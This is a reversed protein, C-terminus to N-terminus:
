YMINMFGLCTKIIGCAALPIRDYDWSHFEYWFGTVLLIFHSILLYKMFNAKQVISIGNARFRYFGYFVDCIIGFGLITEM